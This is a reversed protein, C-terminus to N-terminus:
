RSRMAVRNIKCGYSQTLAREAESPSICDWVIKNGTKNVMAEGKFVVGFKETFMEEVWKAYGWRIRMRAEKTNAYFVTLTAPQQGQAEIEKANWVGEREHVAWVGNEERAFSISEEGIGVQILRFTDTQQKMLQRAQQMAAQLNPYFTASHIKDNGIVVPYGKDSYM